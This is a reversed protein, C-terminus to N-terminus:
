GNWTSVLPSGGHSLVCLYYYLCVCRTLPIEIFVDIAVVVWGIVGSSVHWQYLLWDGGKVCLSTLGIM